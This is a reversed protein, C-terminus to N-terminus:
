LPNRGLAVQFARFANYLALQDAALLGTGITYGGCTKIMLDQPVGQNQLQLIKLGGSPATPLAGATNVSTAFIVGERYLQVNAASARTMLYLGKGSADVGNAYNNASAFSGIVGQSTGGSRIKMWVTHNVPDSSSIGGSGNAAQANAELSYIGYHFDNVSFSVSADIGTDFGNATTLRIGVNEAYTSSITDSNLNDDLLSGVDKILPVQVAGFNHLGAGHVYDDGAFLNLRKIKARLGSVAKIATIFQCAAEKTAASVNGTNAVARTVWDDVEADSCVVPPHAVMIQSLLLIKTEPILGPPVRSLIEASNSLLTQPDCSIGFDGGASNAIDCMVKLKVLSLMGLPIVCLLCRAQELLADINTNITEGDRIACWLVLDVADNMAGGLRCDLCSSDAISEVLDCGNIECLISLKIAAFAGVPITCLLCAAQSILWNSDCEVSTGDRIACLLVVEVADFLIGDLNCQFCKADSLLEQPDCSM